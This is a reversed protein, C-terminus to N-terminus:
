VEEEVWAARAGTLTVPRPFTGSQVLRYVTARSLSTREVVERVPLFRIVATSKEISSPPPYHKM